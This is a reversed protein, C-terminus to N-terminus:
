AGYRDIHITKLSVPDMIATFPISLVIDQDKGGAQVKADGFKIAPLQFAYGNGAGDRTAVQISTTTNNLFKDYLTGDALYVEMTGTVKLTGSNVAVSGLTGIGDLARLSNDLSLDLSKVFTGALASGGELVQAVGSVGNQVDYAQSAVPNGPMTTANARVGDKGMFEITGTTISGSAIKMSLKSVEMGRYAFYQGVDTLGREITFSKETVGNSVRSTSIFSGATAAQAAVPTAPDLTLVTATVATAAHVRLVKGDNATGPMTLRFWQGPKLNTLLDAGVTAAGWTLTGGHGGAPAGATISAAAGKGQTGYVTWAGQLAAALLNDYEKYSLEINIGGNAEAGVPILDTTQRDSRIEASETKNIAFALSEGTFRLNNPNGGVPTVGWDAEEIIRLVTLSSAALTM